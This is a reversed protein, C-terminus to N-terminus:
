GRQGSSVQRMVDDAVLQEIREAMAPTIGAFQRAPITATGFNQYAAYKLNSGHELSTRGIERVAGSAASASMSAQLLGKDVLLKASWGGRRASPKRKFPPWATGDPERSGAFCQKAQAGLYVSVIRLGRSYDLAAPDIALRQLEASLRTLTITVATVAAM